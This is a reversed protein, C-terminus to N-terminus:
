QHKLLFQFIMSVIGGGLIAGAAAWTAIKTAISGVKIDTLQLRADLKDLKTIGTSLGFEMNDLRADVRGRWRERDSEEM